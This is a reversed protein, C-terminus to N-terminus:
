PWSYPKNEWWNNPAASSRIVMGQGPQLEATLASGLWTGRADKSYNTYSQAVPDWISVITSPPLTSAMVTNTLRMSVPYPFGIMSLGTARSMYQSPATTKDPVEGMLFIEAPAAGSAVRLFAGRTRAVKANVASGLWTGRADKSYNTYSQTEPKWISVITSNPVAAFMNTLWHEGDVEFSEFPHSVLYLNAKGVGGVVDVKVYGVANKSLVQQGVAWTAALAVCVIIGLVVKKMKVGMWNILKGVVM